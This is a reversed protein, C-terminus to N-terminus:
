AKTPQTPNCKKKKKKFLPDLQTQTMFNCVQWVQGSGGM